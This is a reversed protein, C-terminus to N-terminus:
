VAAVPLRMAAAVRRVNMMPPPLLLRQLRHRNLLMLTPTMAMVLM